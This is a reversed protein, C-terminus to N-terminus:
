DPVEPSLALNETGSTLLGLQQAKLIASARSSVGLKAYINRNHWKVTNVSLFLERAIDQDSHGKALRRLVDLERSTLHDLDSGQLKLVEKMM